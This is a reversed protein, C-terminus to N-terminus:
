RAHSCIIQDVIAVGGDKLRELMERDPMFKKVEMNKVLLYARFEEFEEVPADTAVFVMHLGLEELKKAVQLAAGKM